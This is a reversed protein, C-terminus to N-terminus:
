ARNKRKRSYVVVIGTASLLMYLCYLMMNNDDSTKPTDDNGTQADTTEKDTTVPAQLNKNPATPNVVDDDKNGPVNPKETPVVTVEESPEETPEVTPEETPEETPELPKLPPNSPIIIVPDPVYKNTITLTDESYSTEYKPVENQSVKYEIEKGEDDYKPLTVTTTWKNDDEADKNNEVNIKIPEGEPKGDVTPQIEVETPRKKNNDNNDDWIVTIKKDVTPVYKNTIVFTAETSTTDTGVYTYKDPTAAQEVTYFIKQGNYFEPLNSWGDTWTSNSVTITHNEVIKDVEEGDVTDKVTGKITVQM